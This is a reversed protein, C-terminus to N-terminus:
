KEDAPTGLKISYRVFHLWKASKRLDRPGGMLKCDLKFRFVSIIKRSRQTCLIGIGVLTAPARM